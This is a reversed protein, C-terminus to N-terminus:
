YIYYIYICVRTHIQTSNMYKTHKYIFNKHIEEYLYSYISDILLRVLNFINYLTNEMTKPLLRGVLDM